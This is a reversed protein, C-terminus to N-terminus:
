VGLARTVFWYAGALAIPLGCAPIAVRKREPVERLMRVVPFTVLVIGIQGLEVGLNYGALAPLLQAKALSLERLATAFGLGHVLGFALAVRWRKSPDRDLVAEVAVVVISLAILSEVLPAPVSVWGFAGLALTISHGLTFGTVTRALQVLTGGGLVLALVFLIHDIGDPLHFSGGSTWESPAAGIHEVGMAVYHVFGNRVLPLVGADDNREATATGGGDARQIVLQFNPSLRVDAVFPFKWRLESSVEPCHATTEVRVSKELSRATADGWACTAGSTTSFAGTGLTVAFLQGGHAEFSAAPPASLGLLRAAADPHLDLRAHVEMGKADVELLGLDLPHCPASTSLLFFLPAFRLLM